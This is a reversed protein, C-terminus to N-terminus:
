TLDQSPCAACLASQNRILGPPLALGASSMGVHHQLQFMEQQCVFLVDTLAQQHPPLDKRAQSCYLSVSLSIRNTNLADRTQPGTFTSLFSSNSHPIHLFHTECTMSSTILNPSKNYRAAPCRKLWLNKNRGEHCYGEAALLQSRPRGDQGARRRQISHSTHLGLFGCLYCATYM